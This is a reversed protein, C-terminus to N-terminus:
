DPRFWPNQGDGRFAWASKPRLDASPVNALPNGTSDRSATKFKRYGVMGIHMDCFLVMAGGGDPTGSGHRYEAKVFNPATSWTTPPGWWCHQSEGQVSGEDCGDMMYVTTRKFRVDGEKAPSPYGPFGSWRSLYSNGWYDPKNRSNPDPHQYTDLPCRGIARPNRAYKHIATCWAGYPYQPTSYCPYTSCYNDMYMTTAYGIQKLNNICQTDKARRKASAFVPFLIAALIAIIAIVVLLEILTFGRRGSM